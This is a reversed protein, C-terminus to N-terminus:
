VSDDGKRGYDYEGKIIYAAWLTHDSSGETLIYIGQNSTFEQVAGQVGYGDYNGYDHFAMIGGNVLKPYYYEIDTKVGLRTHDGDVFVLGLSEDPIEKAMKYSLGKLVVINDKFDRVREMATKYHADHTEQAWGAMGDIFPIREWVDIMYLKEIGCILLEESFLGDAVGVEAAILPLKLDKMLEVLESRSDITM